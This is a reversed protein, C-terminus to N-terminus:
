TGNEDKHRESEEKLVYKHLWIFQRLIISRDQYELDKPFEDDVTPLEGYFYKIANMINEVQIVSTISNYQDRTFDSKHSVGIEMGWATPTYADLLRLVANADNKFLSGIYRRLYEQGVYKRIASLTYPVSRPISITIDTGKELFKVINDGLCKGIENIQTESFDDKEPKDEEERKLWKFIELKFDVLSAKLICDCALNVRDESALNQVLNSILMAAQVFPVTWNCLTDPNPYLDCEFSLATALFISEESSFQNAKYRLKKIIVESNSKNLFEALPNKGREMKGEYNKCDAVMGIIDRDSIDYNPISYTFYRNFYNESCIRQDMNWKEYWDDGFHMNGYVAQLKPFMNKLLSIYGSKDIIGASNLATEILSRIIDREKDNNSYFSDHIVGTFYHKNKRIADYLNPCFVRIAEILMLDVPNVEGKLIPLSFMLTNGYLKAKRPTSLNDDFARTFDRVFEQVQQQSLVIESISLAEEV